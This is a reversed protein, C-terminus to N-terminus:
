NKMGKRIAFVGVLGALLIFIVAPLSIYHLISTYFYGQENVYLFYLKVAQLVIGMTLLPLMVLLGSLFYKM